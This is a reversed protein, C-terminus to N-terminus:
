VPQTRSAPSTAGARRVTSSESRMELVQTAEFQELALSHAAVQVLAAQPVLGIVESGAVAVGQESALTRVAELAVHIPTIVYDTLNM